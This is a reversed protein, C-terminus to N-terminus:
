HVKDLSKQRLEEKLKLIRKKSLGTIDIIMDVSFNKSLMKTATIYKNKEIGQKTGKKIGRKEGAAEGKEYGCEEATGMELIYRKRLIAIRRTEWDGALIKLEDEAKQICKDKSM